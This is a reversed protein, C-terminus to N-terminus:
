RHRVRHREAEAYFHETMQRGQLPAETDGQSVVHMDSYVAPLRGQGDELKRVSTCEEHPAKPGLM